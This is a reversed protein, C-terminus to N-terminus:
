LIGFLSGIGLFILVLGVGALLRLGIYSFINRVRRDVPIEQSIQLPSKSLDVPLFIEADRVRWFLLIRLKGIFSKEKDTGALNFFVRIAVTILGLGLVIVVISGFISFFADM